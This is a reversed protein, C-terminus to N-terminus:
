DKVRKISSSWKNLINPNTPWHLHIWSAHLFDNGWGEKISKGEWGKVEWPININCDSKNPITKALLEWRHFEHGSIKENCNLILGNNIARMRRYGVKLRGEKAKFPLLGAMKHPLGNVDYIEQGLLLMGGCEAYIPLKMFSDKLSQISRKCNSLEHAHQEPFGGPLIIGKAEKPLAEDNLPRWKIINFGLKNLCEETEPYSFHFAKDDAVAIACKSKSDYNNIEYYNYSSEHKEPSVLLEKLRILDLNEKALLTWKDAREQLNHIEHSPALGLNKEPLQMALSSPLCGLMKVNISELVEKLLNKHRDTKVNNLIVGAIKLKPDENRFGKILPALSAAQGRANVVLVIPLNLCKSIEATSGISTSGLGDFLGMAGEVLSLDTKEAHYYFSSKVWKHGYLVLDLNRCPNKSITSLQQPDLYDPGVKFTQITQGTYRAWSSLILSVLTKGCGSSPAGIVCAM